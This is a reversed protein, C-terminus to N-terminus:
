NREVTTTRDTKGKHSSVLLFRLNYSKNHQFSDEDPSIIISVTSVFVIYRRLYQSFIIIKEETEYLFSEFKKMDQPNLFKGNSIKDFLYKEISTLSFLSIGIFFLYM